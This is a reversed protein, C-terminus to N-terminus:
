PFVQWSRDVVRLVRHEVVQRTTIRLCSEPRIMERLEARQYKTENEGIADVLKACGYKQYSQM